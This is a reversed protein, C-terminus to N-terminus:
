NGVADTPLSFVTYVLTFAVVHKVIILLTNRWTYIKKMKCVQFYINKASSEFPPRLRSIEHM